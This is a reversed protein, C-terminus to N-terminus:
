KVRTRQRRQTAPGPQGPLGRLRALAMGEAVQKHSRVDPSGGEPQQAAESPSPDV